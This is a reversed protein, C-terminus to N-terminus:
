KKKETILICTLSFLSQFYLAMGSIKSDTVNSPLSVLSCAQEKLTATLPFYHFIETARPSFYYVLTAPLEAYQKLIGARYLFSFSSWSILRFGKLRRGCQRALKAVHRQLPFDKKDTQRSHPECGTVTRRITYYM